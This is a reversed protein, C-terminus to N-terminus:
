HRGRLKDSLDLDKPALVLCDFDHIVASPKEDHELFELQRISAVRRCCCVEHYHGVVLIRHRAKVHVPRIRRDPQDTSRVRLTRFQELIMSTAVPLPPTPVVRCPIRASVIQTSM